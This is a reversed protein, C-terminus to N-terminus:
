VCVGRGSMCVTLDVCVGRGWHGRTGVQESFESILIFDKTFKAYSTKAWPNANNNSPFLPVSFEEPVVWPNPYGVEGFDDEKTFAVVDPAGIM